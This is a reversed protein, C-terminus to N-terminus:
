SAQIEVLKKRGSGGHKIVISAQPVRFYKALLAIVEGNAKGDIPASKVFVTLVDNQTAIENRKANPKVILSLKMDSRM